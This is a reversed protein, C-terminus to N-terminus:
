RQTIEVVLALWYANVSALVTHRKKTNKKVNSQSQFLKYPKVLKDGGWKQVKKKKKGTHFDIIGEDKESELSLITLHM